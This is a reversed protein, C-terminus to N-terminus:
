PVAKTSSNPTNTKETRNATKTGCCGIYTTEFIADLLEKSTWPNNLRRLCGHLDPMQTKHSHASTTIIASLEGQRYRDQLIAIAQKELNFTPEAVLVVDPVFARVHAILEETNSAVVFEFGCGSLLRRLLDSSDSSNDAILIRLPM